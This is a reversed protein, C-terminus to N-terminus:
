KVFKKVDRSLEKSAQAMSKSTAQLNKITGSVRANLIEPTVKRHAYLYAHLKLALEIRRTEQKAFAASEERNLREGSLSTVLTLVIVTAILWFDVLGVRGITWESALVGYGNQWFELFNVIADTNSKTYISFATTAKSVALWTLAVPAFVLVNRAIILIRNTKARRLAVTQNASPLFELPNIEALSEIDDLTELANVLTKVYPDSTVKSKLAWDKLENLLETDVSSPKRRTSPKRATPM